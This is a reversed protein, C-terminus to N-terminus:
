NRWRALITSADEGQELAVRLEASGLLADIVYHSGASTEPLVTRRSWAFEPHRAAIACILHVGFDLGEFPEGDTVAFAVAPLTSGAYQGTTPTSVTVSASVPMNWHDIEAALAASDLWPAAVSRFPASTGRGECLNTGELLVLGPYFAIAQPHDLAPSPPVWTGVRGTANGHEVVRFRRTGAEAAAMGLLGGLTLGHVFPVDFWAVLSRLAPDLAPGASRTGLPNPRDCVIIDLDRLSRAAAILRAATAAYTFCRVGVDRLDIIISDLDRLTDVDPTFRPGYLSIIPVGSHPDVSDDVDKGAPSSAAVGHEPTFLRILGRTASPQLARTFATRTPTGDATRCADHTLLGVRTASLQDVLTHDALLSDIGNTNRGAPDPIHFKM